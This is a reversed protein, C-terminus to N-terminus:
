KRPPPPDRGSAAARVIYIVTRHIYYIYTCLAELLVNRFEGPDERLM